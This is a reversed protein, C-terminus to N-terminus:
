TSRRQAGNYIDVAGNAGLAATVMVAHTGGPFLDLSSANPRPRGAPHILLYGPSTVDTATLNLM